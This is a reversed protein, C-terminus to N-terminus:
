GNEVWKRAITVVVSVVLVGVLGYRAILSFLNKSIGEVNLHTVTGRAAASILAFLYMMPTGNLVYLSAKLTDKAVFDIADFIGLQDAVRWLFSRREPQQTPQAAVAADAEPENTPSGSPEETTEDDTLPPM